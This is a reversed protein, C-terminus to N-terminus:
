SHVIVACLILTGDADDKWSGTESMKDRESVIELYLSFISGSDGLIPYEKRNKIRHYKYDGTTPDTTPSFTSSLLLTGTEPNVGAEVNVDGTPPQSCRPNHLPTSPRLLLHGDKALRLPPLCSISPSFQLTIKSRSRHHSGHGRVMTLESQPAWRSRLYRCGRRPSM